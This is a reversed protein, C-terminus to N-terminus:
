DQRTVDEFAEPSSHRLDRGEVLYVIYEGLNKAHDGIREIAKAILLADLVRRIEGADEMMYSYYQRFIAEYDEDVKEDARLLEVAVEPAMRTFGDLATQLMELVLQGTSELERYNNRPRQYGALRIALRAIKEAEDGIRELDSIAKIIAFVLRLDSAAPQRRAIILNCEEDIQKEMRNVQDDTDIVKRALESDGEVVARMALRLMEEAMGGMAMMRNRLEELEQNFQRSIHQDFHKEM